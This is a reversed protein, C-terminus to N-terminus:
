QRFATDAFSFCGKQTIATLVVTGVPKQVQAVVTRGEYFPETSQTDVIDWVWATIEAADMGSVAGELSFQNNRLAEIALKLKFDVGECLKRFESGSCQNRASCDFAPVRMKKNDLRRNTFIAGDFLAGTAADKENTYRVTLSYAPDPKAFTFGFELNFTDCVFHEIWLISFPDTATPAYTIVWRNNGLEAGFEKVLAENIIANLKKVVRGIVNQFKGDLGLEATPIQLLADVDPLVIDKGNFRFRAPGEHTYVDYPTNKTPPQIWLRYACRQSQGGCPLNCVSHKFENSVKCGASDTIIVNISEGSKVPVSTYVNDVIVGSETKYPVRGGAISFRVQYTKAAISDIYQESGIALLAPIVLSQQASATGTSDRILLTHTGAALVLNGTLPQFSRADLQYTFPAIGGQPTVTVEATGNAGTCGIAVAVGLPAAPLTFQIPSCDSCCLYPLFFDAIVTGDALEDAAQDIISRNENGAPPAIIGLDPVQGIFTGLVFRIDPDVVLTRNASIRTFADAIAATNIEKNALSNVNSVVTNASFNLSDRVFTFNPNLAPEPDDHYVIIFTGGLPVGAKHQIGPNKQLFFSLFQKQKVARIRRQYEIHISQLADPRCNFLIAELRDDIEEARLISDAGELQSFRTERRTELERVAEELEHYRNALNDFDMDVLNEALAEDLRVIRFIIRFFATNLIDSVLGLLVDSFIKQQYQDEFMAGLRDSKVLFDPRYKILVPIISRVATESESVERVPLDYFFALEKALFCRFEERLADYLAELDQFRCEEKSLDIPIKEDFVGTRLTIIEIPLRYRTKLSLLTQMVSRFDKGLHGEIRLFNYPELDYHLPDKVFSPAAPNQYEDSRYSLNQHARKRRNKELNWSAYLPPAGNQLYYYPIAKDGPPVDGFQSPTIRIQADKASTDAGLPKPLPTNTFSKIMEVLRQFLLKLENTREECDGIIPSALFHHRYVGPNSVSAPFLMGLMLHRPFTEKPPCCACMLEAGKWRFEDYAKLIDDFFDYYYQLFLVQTTTQPVTDLFGFKESFAAFPDTAYMDKVIPNFAHYAASLAKGTNLALKDAQFVSHFTAFVEESTALGTNPVNLRPLRLDPLNLRALLVAELDAFTLDTGFTNAEAVIKVLDDTEILLRKVTATVQAGKDDCNNPSCNRLSEAKLELFLLVAKDKLNPITSLATTNPEGAAFMEWLPYQTHPETDKKKLPPYDPDNPLTYERYSVLAVDESEVILYGESTVGCGKSIHVTANAGATELRIELGCVIGIGILNARTLREQEDLYNFIDNLHVNTLVQNAEFVPYNDKIPKM